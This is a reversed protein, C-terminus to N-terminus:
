TCSNASPSWGVERAANDAQGIEILDYIEQRATIYFDSNLDPYYHNKRYYYERNPDVPPLDGDLIKAFDPDNVHPNNTLSSLGAEKALSAAENLAAAAENLKDNIRQAIYKFEEKIIIKSM